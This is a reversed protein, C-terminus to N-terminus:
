IGLGLLLMFSRPKYNSTNNVTNYNLNSLGYVYRGQLSVGGLTHFKLGAGVVGAYTTGTNGSPCNGGTCNLEFSIQPGIMAFPTIVPNPIALRLYLPVDIYGLQQSDNSASSTFGRQAYLVNFGFGIPGGSQAGIGVAFGNNAKLNGPSVGGNNPTSGWTLGGLIGVQASAVAPMACLASVAIVMLSRKM